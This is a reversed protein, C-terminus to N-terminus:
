NNSKNIFEITDRMKNNYIVYASIKNDIISFKDWPCTYKFFVLNRLFMCPAPTIIKENSLEILMKAVKVKSYRRKLVYRYIYDFTVGSYHTTIRSIVSGAPIGQDLIELKATKFYEILKKRM